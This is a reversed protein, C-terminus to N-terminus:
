EEWKKEAYPTHAESYTIGEPGEKENDDCGIFAFACCAALMCVLAGILLFKKKMM